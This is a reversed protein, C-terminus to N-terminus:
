GDKNELDSWMLSDGPSLDKSVRRGLIKQYHEASVGLAPRLLTLDEGVLMAGKRVPRTLKIGRRAVERMELEGEVPAKVASGLALETERIGKVFLRFDKPDLSAAHDPGTQHRDLTIHKEIVQAGLTVALPAALIGTSHDSYGVPLSFEAVMSAIARLNLTKMPAPYLSTCHMVTLAGSSLKRGSAAKSAIEIVSVADRVEEMTSMGTSLLLPLGFSALQELFPHNTLEGSPIKLRKVGLSVLFKAAEFDFPTSMFEISYQECMEWLQEHAKQSLELRRLMEVQSGEGTSQVQYNAKKASQSALKSATFSQFKVADAGCDAAVKILKEAHKMNGNHNVGVEAIIFVSM